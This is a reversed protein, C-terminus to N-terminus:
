FYRRESTSLLPRATRAVMARKPRKTWLRRHPLERQGPVQCQNKAADPKCWPKFSFPGASESGKDLIDAYFRTGGLITM